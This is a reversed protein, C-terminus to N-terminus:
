MEDAQDKNPESLHSARNNQSAITELNGMTSQVNTKSTLMQSEFEQVQAKLVRNETELEGIKENERSAEQHTAQNKIHAIDNQIIGMEKIFQRKKNLKEETKELQKKHQELQSKL